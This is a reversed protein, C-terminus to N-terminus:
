RAPMCVPGAQNPRPMFLRSNWNCIMPAWTSLCIMYKMWDSKPDIGTDVLINNEVHNNRDNLVIGQPACNYIINERILTGRGNADLRIIGDPGHNVVDHIYNRRIVNGEGNGTINIVAGDIGIECLEYAENNEIINNHNHLFGAIYDWGRANGIENWRIQKSCERNNVPM